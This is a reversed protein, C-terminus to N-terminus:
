GILYRPHPREPRLRDELLAGSLAADIMAISPFTISAHKIPGYLVFDAGLVVPMLSSGVFAPDKAKKGFKSVLGEWMAVANHAGCGVPLGHREKISVLARCALGLTLLDVVGTDFLANTIGARKARELLSDALEARKTASAMAINSFTLLVASKVGTDQIATYIDNGNEPTLSNLVVRDLIGANRAAALGASNVETSGSGDILLPMDTLDSLIRLYNDIAQPTVAVVDLMSPLGTKESVEALQQLMVETKQKDIGGTKEDLVLKDKSYFISGVMVTPVLGPRGGVKVGGIDLTKQESTYQFM